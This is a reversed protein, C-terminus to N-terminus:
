QSAGKLSAVYAILDALEQPNLKGRYSPMPSKAVFGSERLDAKQISVLRGQAAEIIQVTHTDQNLLAGTVTAGDKKVARYPQSASSVSADPDLISTEIEISRLLLGAESLDPGSRGGTGYVRHCTNCGANGNLTARTFLARGRAIDGKAAAISKVGTNENMSHLYAVIMYGRAPSTVIGGPMGTGPVGNLIVNVVGEDTSVRRYRQHGLDIGTVSTGEPGHCGICNARYLKGGEEIDGPTYGHQQALVAAALAAVLAFLRWNLFGM